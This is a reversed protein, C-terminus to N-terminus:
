LHVFIEINEDTWQPYLSFEVGVSFLKLVVLFVLSLLM